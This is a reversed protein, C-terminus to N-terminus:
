SVKKKANKEPKPKTVKYEDGPFWLYIYATATRRTLSFEDMMKAVVEKRSKGRKLLAKAFQVQRTSKLESKKM